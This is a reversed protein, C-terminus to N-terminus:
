NGVSKDGNEQRIRAIAFSCLYSGYEVIKIITNRFEPQRDSDFIVSKTM